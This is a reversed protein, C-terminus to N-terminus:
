RLLALPADPPAYAEILASSVFPAFAGGGVPREGNIVKKVRFVSAGLKQSLEQLEPFLDAESRVLGGIGQGSFEARVNILAVQNLNGPSGELL